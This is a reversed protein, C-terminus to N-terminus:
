SPRHTPREPLTVAHGVILVLRDNETEPVALDPGTPMVSTRGRHESPVVLDDLGHVIEDPLGFEGLTEHVLGRSVPM